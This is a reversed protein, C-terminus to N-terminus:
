SAIEAQVFTAPRNGVKDKRESELWRALQAVGMRWSLPESLGLEQQVARIDSVYYRQDGLRPSVFRTLVPRDTLEEIAGLLQLLSIANRPGGGLNFARAKIKDIQKWAAIYTSVADAVYLVDRVQRGDGFITITEGALAKILFHAVWGQDETGMQHPGYICSMRMVATPVDFSRAYDLVYQDAAGKSCGYPTHFDLQRDPGIGRSRLAPDAPVWADDVRTLAVDGINGYVKNTSAFIVPQKHRRAAELINLTGQVNVDFDRRPHTLSTTVAVQAAFHFIAQTKAAVAAVTADDAVDGRVFSIRDGYRSTLWNLNREVGNRLLNDLIVVSHGEQALHDSLNCGIFGAGGTVLIPRQDGSGSRCATPSTSAHRKM